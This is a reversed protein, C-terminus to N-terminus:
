RYPAPFNVSVACKEPFCHFLGDGGQSKRTEKADVQGTGAHRLGRLGFLRRRRGVLSRAAGAALRVEAADPLDEVGGVPVDLGVRGLRCQHHAGSRDHRNRRPFDQGQAGDASDRSAHADDFAALDGVRRFAAGLLAPPVSVLDVGAKEAAGAEELTVVRLMTLQRKGKMAQLDAVTPRSSKM